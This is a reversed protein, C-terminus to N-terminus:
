PQEEDREYPMPMNEDERPRASLFEFFENDKLALRMLWDVLRTKERSELFKELREMSLGTKKQHGTVPLRLGSPLGGLLALGAAVFHKCYGFEYFGPCSCFGNFKDKRDWLWVDYDESGRVVAHAENKWFRLSRVSGSNHYDVGRAYYRTGAMQQLLKKSLKRFPIATKKRRNKGNAAV